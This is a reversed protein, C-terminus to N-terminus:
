RPLGELAIRANTYRPDDTVEREVVIALWHPPEVAFDERPLEVEAFFLDFEKFEDVEWMLEIEGGISPDMVKVPVRHRTKIIRRGETKAWLREFEDPELPREIEERTLGSGRKVTHSYKRSGDPAIKERIRGPQDNGAEMPLYGQRLRWPQAEAPLQPMGKLLFKREIELNSGSQGV